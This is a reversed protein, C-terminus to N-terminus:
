LLSGAEWVMEVDKGWFAISLKIIKTVHDHKKLFSDYRKEHIQDLGLKASTLLDNEKGLKYEIVIGTSNKGRKPFLILDPRGIGSEVQSMIEHTGSIMYILCLMFGEYFIETREGLQNYSTSELLFKKLRDYFKQVDGKALLQAFHAFTSIDIQLKNLVWKSVKEQFIEAVEENPISLEFEKIKWNIIKANLYGSFLLLSYLLTPSSNLDEFVFQTKIISTITERKLLKQLDEQISDALLSADVLGTGGSEVWYLGTKDGGICCMVSFPNYVYKDGFTYGNYWYKIDDRTIKNLEVKELLEDVEEQSFGYHNSYENDLINYEMINNMGSFIEEKAIRIIGTFMGRQLYDTTKFCNVFLNKFLAVVTQFEDKKTKGFTAHAKNMVSDYEDILVWVKRHFHTSLLETLFYLSDELETINAFDGKCYRLITEKSTDDINNSHLLHIHQRYLNQVKTKVGAKIDEYNDQEIGKLSLLIVPYKGQHKKIIELHQAIKLPKLLKSDGDDVIVEGGVFLKKNTNEVENGNKDVQIELFTKLMNMNISKGWRRPRTILIVQWPDDLVDKIFLSKDIFVDNYLVLNRFNDSGIYTPKLKM